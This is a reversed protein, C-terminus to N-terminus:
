QACIIRQSHPSIKYPFYLFHLFTVLLVRLLGGSLPPRPSRHAARVSPGRSSASIGAAIHSFYDFCDRTCGRTRPRLHPHPLRWPLRHFFHSPSRTTAALDKDTCGWPSPAPLPVGKGTCGRTRPRLHPPPLRWPLRHFFTHPHASPPSTVGYPNLSWDRHPQSVLAGNTHACLACV